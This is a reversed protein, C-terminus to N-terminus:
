VLTDKQNQPTCQDFALLILNLQLIPVKTALHIYELTNLTEKM